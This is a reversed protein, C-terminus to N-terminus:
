KNRDRGYAFLVLLILAGQFMERGAASIKMVNLIDKFMIIMLTGAIVGWYKGKGGSIAIGGIVAASVSFLQYPTGLTLYTNGINGLLLIGAIGSCLASIMYVLYKIRFPSIGSLKATNENAGVAYIYRGYKTYTTLWILVGLFVLWIWFANAFVFPTGNAMNKIADTCGSPPTGQTYVLLIGEIISVMAMTMIIPSIRLFNIGTANIAGVLLSAALALVIALATGGGHQICSSAVVSSLTVVGSVSMDMGGTLIVVAQGLVILGLFSATRLMTANHNFSSFGPIFILSLIWIIVMTITALASPDKLKSKIM